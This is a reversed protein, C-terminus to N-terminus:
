RPSRIDLPKSADLANAELQLKSGISTAGIIQSYWGGGSSRSDGFHNVRCVFYTGNKDLVTPYDGPYRPLQQLVTNDIKVQQAPVQVKLRADLLVRLQIGDQTVQPTGLIGTTPTYTLTEVTAEGDITGLNLGNFGFFSVMGNGAAVEDIFENPDGFFGRARPYKTQSLAETSVSGLTIPTFASAAMKAVLDGQTSGPTGPFSAFNAITEALGTYSLITLKNDTVDELTIFTQYIKGQWILGYPQTQYGASLKITAGQTLVLQATPSNLNYIEIKAFWLSKYGPMDIDFVIRLTEPDWASSSVRLVQSTGSADPQTTIELDWAWGFYSQKSISPTSTSM